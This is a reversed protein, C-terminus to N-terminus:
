SYRTKAKELFCRMENRVETPALIEGEGLALLWGFFQPSIEVTVTAVFSETDPEPRLFCDKGFQDIVVHALREPFRMSVTKKEGSFMSFVQSTYISIDLLLFEMAGERKTECLSISLMKDVRYHKFQGPESQHDYALMYYNYRDWVLAFPSVEYFAGQKRLVPEKKSNYDFYQFRLMKDQVIGSNIRDVNYYVTENENKTRNQIYIQHHIMRAQHSSTLSELKQILSLTKKPTIFRSSQIMDVLMKLEALEFPRMGVYYGTKKHKIRIIDLGYLRLLELDDYLSKREARIGSKQLEEIIESISLPHEEDTKQLLLDRLALLKLKQYVSKPMFM